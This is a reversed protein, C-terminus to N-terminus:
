SLFEQGFLLIVGMVGMLHLRLYLPMDSMLAHREVKINEDALAALIDSITVLHEEDTNQRLYKMVYLTRDKKSM